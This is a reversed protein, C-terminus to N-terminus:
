CVCVCVRLCRVRGMGDAVIVNEINIELCNRIQEIECVTSRITGVM